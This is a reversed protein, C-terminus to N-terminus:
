QKQRLEDLDDEEEQQEAPKDGKTEIEISEYNIDDFKHRKNNRINLEQVTPEKIRLNLEDLDIEEFSQRDAENLKRKKVESKSQIINYYVIDNEKDFRLAIEKIETENDGLFEKANNDNVANSVPTNDMRQPKLEYDGKKSFNFREEDDNTEDNEDLKNLRENLKELQEPDSLTYVSVQSTTNKNVNFERFLGKELLTKDSINDFVNSARITSFVQDIRSVDPLLSWVKKAKLKKKLPHRFNSFDNLTKTASEFTQEISRLQSVPTNISNSLGSNKSGPGGAKPTPTVSKSQTTHSKQSGIYETRRLFLVNPEGKVARDIGPDRLLVQDHPHLKVNSQDTKQHDSELDFLEPNNTLYISLGLDDDIEILNKVNQKRYL